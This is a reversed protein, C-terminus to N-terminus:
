YCYRYYNWVVPFDDPIRILAKSIERGKKEIWTQLEGVTTLWVRIESKETKTVAERVPPHGSLLKKDGIIHDHAKPTSRVFGWTVTDLLATGQIHVMPAPTYMNDECSKQNYTRAMDVRLKDAGWGNGLSITDGSVPLQYDGTPLHFNISTQQLELM